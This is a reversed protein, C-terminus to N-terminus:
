GASPRARDRRFDGGKSGPRSRALATLIINPNQKAGLVNRGFPSGGGARRHGDAERARPLTRAVIEDLEPSQKRARVRCKGLGEGGM